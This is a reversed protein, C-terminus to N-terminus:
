MDTDVPVMLTMALLAEASSAVGVPVEEAVAEGATSVEGGEPVAEVEETEKTAGTEGAVGCEEGEEPVEM